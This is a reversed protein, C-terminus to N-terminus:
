GGMFTVKGSSGEDAAAPGLLRAFFSAFIEIFAGESEPLSEVMLTWFRSGDSLVEQVYGGRSDIESIFDELDYPKDPVGEAPVFMRVLLNFISGFALAMVTSSLIIVNYPM